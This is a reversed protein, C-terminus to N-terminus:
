QGELSRSEWSKQAQMEKLIKHREAREKPTLKSDDVKQAPETQGAQSDGSSKSPSQPGPAPRTGGPKDGSDVEVPWGKSEMDLKIQHRQAEAKKDEMSSGSRSAGFAAGLDPLARSTKEAGKAERSITTRDLSQARPTEVKSKRGQPREWSRKGTRAYIGFERLAGGASFGSM